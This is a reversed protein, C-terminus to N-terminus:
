SLSIYHGNFAYNFPSLTVAEGTAKSIIAAGTNSIGLPILGLRISTVLETLIFRSRHIPTTEKAYFLIGNDSWSDNMSRINLFLHVEKGIVKYKVLGSYGNQWEVQGSIDIATEEIWKDRDLFVKESLQRDVTKATRLDIFAVAGDTSDSLYAQYSRYVKHNQGDYFTRDDTDVARYCLKKTGLVGALSEPVEYIQGAICVAGATINERSEDVAGYLIYTDGFAKSLMATTEALAEQMFSLDRAYVPQGGDYTQLEKNM